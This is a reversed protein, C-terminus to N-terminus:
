EVIERDIARNHIHVNDSEATSKEELGHAQDIPPLGDPTGSRTTSKLTWWTEPASGRRLSQEARKRRGNQLRGYITPTNSVFASTVIQISAFFTRSPQASKGKVVLPIRVCTIIICFLGLFVMVTVRFKQGATRGQMRLLPVSMVLISLDLAINFSGQLFLQTYAHTCEGPDPNIQWYRHFPRCESFTVITVTVYTAALVIWCCKIAISAWRLSHLLNSYFLLLIATSLWYFTTDLLRAVLALISGIKIQQLKSKSLNYLHRVVADNATGDILLYHDVILRAVIVLIGLGALWDSLDFKLRYFRVVCFRSLLIGLALGSCVWTALNANNKTIM